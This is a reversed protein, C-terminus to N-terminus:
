QDHLLRAAVPAALLTSVFVFASIAWSRGLAWAAIQVLVLVALLIRNRARRRAALPGTPRSRPTPLLRRFRNRNARRRTDRANQAAREAARAAIEREREARRQAREKAM